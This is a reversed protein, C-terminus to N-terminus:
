KGSSSTLQLSHSTSRVEGTSRARGVSCVSLAEGLCPPHTKLKEAGPCRFKSNFLFALLFHCGLELPKHVRVRQSQTFERWSLCGRSRPTHAVSCLWLSADLSQTQHQLAQPQEVLRHTGSLRERTPIFPQRLHPRRQVIGWSSTITRAFRAMEESIPPM